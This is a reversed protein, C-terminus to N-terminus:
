AAPQHQAIHGCIADVLTPWLPRPLDHGMGEVLFLKADPIVEATREGGSPQVLTDASGHIVLSPIALTALGSSRSGSALIAALQRAVGLPEHSRDWSEGALRRLDDEDFLGPSGWVHAQRVMGEQAEERTQAPPAVLAAMAEATPHGVDPDGTTSMISTLTLVRGPHALAISQAIMGGMSVGVVHARDVGLHDLLGVADDAMDSLLYPVAASPSGSAEANLLGFVDVGGGELHTSLGVDRNDFRVVHFGREAIMGCLEPEWQILQGGLGMVLLVTPDSANGVADYCIEIGNAKATPLESM